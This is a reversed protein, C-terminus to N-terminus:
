AEQGATRRALVYRATGAILLVLLAMIVSIAMGEARNNLDANRFFELALVSLMRPFRVGLLAPVEYAGFVFAFILLSGAVLGPLVLPLTVYRMTQWRSAGLNAAVTNYEDPQARLISLMLLLLFPIEKSVYNLIIGIGFRDRVLVPFEAPADILGLVAAIRALLGSQSLLLGLGIAWVLHPFSLNLNLVTLDTTSSRLQQGFLLVVLLSLVAGIVTAAGSVWLSFGLSHWFEVAAVSREGEPTLGILVNYYADLTLTTQGLFPLYGLSQLLGYAISTGFLLAVLALAPALMLFTSFGRPRRFTLRLTQLRQRFM